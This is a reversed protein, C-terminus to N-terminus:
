RFDILLTGTDDDTPPDVDGDRGGAATGDAAAAGPADATRDTTGPRTAAPPTGTRRAAVTARFSHASWPLQMGDYGRGFGDYLALAEELVTAREDESLGAVHSRVSVLDELGHRDVTQWFPHRAEDVFGFLGSTALLEAWDPRESTAGHRLIRSLRRVWPIREDRETWVMAVHGGPKLVRAIEPLAVELDFWHFCQAGVVVDVSRDAVPLEEVGALSARVEPLRRGLRKLMREDPDTAHVDHGLELLVETLKGTGAGVELVTCPREGTLWAAAARPYAPRGREYADAVAGFAGPAGRPRDAPRDADADRPPQQESM